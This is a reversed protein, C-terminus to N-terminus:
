CEDGPISDVLPKVKKIRHRSIKCKAEFCPFNHNEPQTQLRRQNFFNTPVYINLEFVLYNDSIHGIQQYIIQFLKFTWYSIM